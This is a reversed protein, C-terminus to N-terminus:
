APLGPPFAAEYSVAFAAGALAALLGVVLSDLVMLAWVLPMPLGRAAYNLGYHAAMAPLWAAVLLLALLPLWRWGRLYSQVLSYRRDGSLAGLIPFLLPLAAISLLIYVIWYLAKPGRGRLADVFTPQFLFLASAVILQIWAVDCLNWWREGRTRAGWFRAAALMAILLGALKFSGFAWRTPDNALARAREIGEFMGIRIEVVHQVFEPIAVLAIIVPALLFIAFGRRYVELLQRGVFRIM